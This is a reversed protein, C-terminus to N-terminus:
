FDHAHEPADKSHDLEAARRAVEAKVEDLSMNDERSPDLNIKVPEIGIEDAEDLDLDLAGNETVVPADDIGLNWEDMSVEEGPFDEPEALAGAVRELYLNEPTGETRAREASLEESEADLTAELDEAHADFGRVAETEAAGHAPVYEERLDLEGALEDESFLSNITDERQRAAKEPSVQDLLRDEDHSFDAFYEVLEYGSTAEDISLSGSNRVNLFVVPLGEVEDPALVVADVQGPLYWELGTMQVPTVFAESFYGKAALQGLQTDTFEYYADVSQGGDPPYVLENVGHPFARDPKVGRLEGSIHLYPRYNQEVGHHGLDVSEVLVSLEAPADEVQTTSVGRERLARHAWVDTMSLGAIKM